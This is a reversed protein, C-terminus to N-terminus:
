ETSKGRKVIPTIVEFCDRYLITRSIISQYGKVSDERVVAGLDRKTLQAETEKGYNFRIRLHDDYVFVAQVFTQIIKKVVEPDELNSDRFEYLWARLHEESFTRLAESEMALAQELDKKTEALENMRNIAMENFLGQEMAKMLNGLAKETDQLQVQLTNAKSEERITRIVDTYGAIIWDVLEENELLKVVALAVSYELDDRPVNKKDCAHDYHHANCMYYSYLSGNRSTGSIGTMPSGCLGCFAKGVLFYETDNRKHGRPRKKEKLIRQVEEFVAKDLIPPIGNEIRVEGFKYVGIYQENQLLTQFSQFTWPRGGKTTIGRNNMDAMIDAIIWGARFRDYIERVIKAEKEEIAYRGNPAKKFGFSIKGNVMCKNANDLMGRRVDEALNESYFQNVNMMNRLAFRGSATNDFDEEVYLCEVGYEALKAMNTLAQTMNRGIRNSKWAIIYDFQEKKADRMMRQFDPRDDTRGSIAADQYVGVVPLNNREAFKKCEAVQQEISAERQNNSSYRAYIVAKGDTQRKQRKAMPM